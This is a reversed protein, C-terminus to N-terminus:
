HRLTFSLAWGNGRTVHPVDFREKVIGGMQLRELLAQLNWVRLQAFMELSKEGLKALRRRCIM